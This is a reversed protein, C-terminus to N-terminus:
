CSSKNGDWHLTFGSMQAHLTMYALSEPVGWKVLVQLLKQWPVSDFAARVDFKALAVEGFWKRMLLTSQSLALQLGQAGRNAVYAFSFASVHTLYQALSALLMSTTMSRTIGSVVIGGFQEITVKPKQVKPLPLMRQQMYSSAPLLHSTYDGDLLMPLQELWSDPVVKLVDPVMGDLGVGKGITERLRSFAFGRPLYSQLPTDISPTTLPCVWSSSPVALVKKGLHTELKKIIDDKSLILGTADVVTSVPKQRGTFLKFINGGKAMENLGREVKIKKLHKYLKKSLTLREVGVAGNRERRIQRATRDWLPLGMSSTDSATQLTREHAVLIAEYWASM